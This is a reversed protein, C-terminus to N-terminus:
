VWRLLPAAFWIGNASLDRPLARFRKFARDASCSSARTHQKACKVWKGAKGSSVGIQAASGECSMRVSSPPRDADNAKTVRSTAQRLDEAEGQNLCLDFQQPNFGFIAQACLCFTM